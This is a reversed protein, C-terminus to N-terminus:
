AQLKTKAMLKGFNVLPDVVAATAALVPAHEASTDMRQVLNCDTSEQLSPLSDKVAAAASTSATKFQWKFM